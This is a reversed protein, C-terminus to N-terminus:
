LKSKCSECLMLDVNDITKITEAADRMVCKNSSECHRLGMNHGIEHICIKKFREIFKIKDASKIRFTSVVCSVGPRFGLGFVGWDAYKTEPNKVKGIRDRKTTSIDEAVLGIVCDISKPKERRLIRILSDARYRPSKINVFASKPLSKDKLIKVQIGYVNQIASRITDVLQPDFKDYTQIGVVEIKNTSCSIVGLFLSVLLINKM